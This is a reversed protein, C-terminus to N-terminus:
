SYVPAYRQRIGILLLSVAISLTHLRLMAAHTHTQNDEIHSAPYFGRNCGGTSSYTGKGADTTRISDLLLVIM